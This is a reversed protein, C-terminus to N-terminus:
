HDPLTYAARIGGYVPLESATLYGSDPGALYAAAAAVEDLTAFRGMPIHAFRRRTEEEGMREFVARIEPADVPGLALTNVRIGRRALHTGLDRGLQTVAAKAASFATQATAAGMGALFSGTLVISGGPNMVPVGYRCSLVVPALVARFAREWVEPPTELLGHDERDMPGANVHLVDVGGYEAHIREFALRTESDVRLDAAVVPFGVEVPQRDIGIVRGGEATFRAAVAGAIAGGAGAIVCIRGGLRGQDQSNGDM